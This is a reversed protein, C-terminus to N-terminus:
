VLFSTGKKIIVKHTVLAIDFAKRYSETATQIFADVADKEIINITCGGFGGGMMRSGLIADNSRTQDVLFDLEPCSVEYEHQLGNHTKYMNKGFAVLDNHKLDECATVVRSTEEIIFKCRKYTVPDFESQHKELLSMPVDRLSQITPDYKQLIAVGRECEQRRTNYESSGLSHKVGTDCLLIIHEDQKFPFYEYELSRCDLRIVADTEGMLSAFMDMIGCNLGVFQNEARQCLKVLEMKPINLHYLENVAFAFGAELAASSSVGAGVPINGGFVLNFGNFDYGLKQIQDIVGKLYYTWTEETRTLADVSFTEERDLNYARVRCLRDPRASIAFHMERDIAAPLVFGMNYDTHEGILNIRGPSRVLLAPEAQFYQRYHETLATHLM